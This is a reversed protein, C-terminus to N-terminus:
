MLGSLRKEFSTLRRFQALLNYVILAIYLEQQFMQVSKTGISRANQTLRRNRGDVQDQWKTV